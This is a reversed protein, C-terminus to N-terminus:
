RADAWRPGAVVVPMPANRVIAASVSGLAVRLVGSRGYSGVGILSSGRERAHNVLVSAANFGDLPVADVHVGRERVADRLSALDAIAAGPAVLCVAAALSGLSCM